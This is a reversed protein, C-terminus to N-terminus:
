NYIRRAAQSIVRSVTRPMNSRPPQTNEIQNNTYLDHFGTTKFCDSNRELFRCLKEFRANVIHDPRTKTQNLLEFNHSLIVVSDWENELAHWLFWEFEQFSCAGLQLHRLHGQREEFVSMPYEWVGDIFRPQNFEAGYQMQSAEPMHAANFSSDYTIQNEALAQWTNQNMGFSGARFANIKAAGAQELLIRGQEILQKQHEINFLCLHQHKFGMNPIMTPKVEDAWETHLHLQIEQNADNILGVIEQLPSAGFRASFLSETFFVGSLGHANLLNLTRPLGYNGQKTRGYIYRQFQQPFKRDIEDWGDCWVEVDVTFFVNLM